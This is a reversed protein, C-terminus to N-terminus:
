QIVSSLRFIINITFRTNKDSDNFICGSLNILYGIYYYGLFIIHMEFMKEFKSRKGYALKNTSIETNLSLTFRSMEFPARCTALYTVSTVKIFHCWKKDAVSFLSLMCCSIVYVCSWEILTTLNTWPLILLFSSPDTNINSIWHGRSLLWGIVHLVDVPM